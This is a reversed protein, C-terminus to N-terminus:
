KLVLNQLHLRFKFNLIIKKLSIKKIVNVDQQSKIKHQLFACFM